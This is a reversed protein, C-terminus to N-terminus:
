NNNFKITFTTGVGKKSSVSIAAKNVDSYQKVLALGLGSGEFKRTYGEEEQTFKKFLHPLYQEAIGIGTDSIILETKDDKQLVEFTISGKLTYKISNHILNATLQYVSYLDAFIFIQNRIDNMFNIALNKQLAERKFENIVPIVVQNVLDIKEYRATYAGSEIESIGLIMDITRLLRNAANQISIFSGKFEGVLKNEFEMKLLSTYNLITNIPTSIEHSMQALFDSKMKESNEAKEKAQVLAHEANKQNTIDRINCLLTNEGSWDLKNLTIESHFNEGHCKTLTEDFIIKQGSNARIIKQEIKFNSNPESSFINFFSKKILDEKKCEFLTLTIPNFDEIRNGRLILVAESSSDFLTKYHQDIEKLALDKMKLKEVTETLEKNKSFVGEQLKTRITEMYFSMLTMAIFAGFYRFIFASTYDATLGVLYIVATVVAYVVCAFLGRQSGILYMVVAPFLLSWLHGSLDVVGDSFLFIFFTGCLIPILILSHKINKTVNVQILLISFFLVILAEIIGLFYKSNVFASLGFISILLIAVVLIKQVIVFKKLTNDDEIHTTETKAM